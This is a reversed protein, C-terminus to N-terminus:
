LLQLQQPEETETPAEPEGDGRLRELIAPLQRIDEELFQRMSQQRLAAAPHYLPFVAIGNWRRLKGHARSIMERPLFQTLSFRGLTVIVRPQLLAIQRELYGHCAEIEAPLPDRNGPPRCKVVNAIYVQQRPMGISALLEELLKGAAGVFPRGQQDEYYGPGEGIFMLEPQDPGEGPVARTRTQSLACATCSTVERALAELDSM